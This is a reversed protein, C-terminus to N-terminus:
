SLINICQFISTSYLSKHSITANFYRECKHVKQCVIELGHVSLPLYSVHRHVQITCVCLLNIRKVEMAEHEGACTDFWKSLSVLVGWGWRWCPLVFYQIISALCSLLWQLEFFIIPALLNSPSWLAEQIWKTKTMLWSRVGPGWPRQQAGPGQRDVLNDASLSFVANQVFSDQITRWSGIKKQMNLIPRVSTLKAVRIRTLVTLLLIVSISSNSEAHWQAIEEFGYLVYGPKTFM